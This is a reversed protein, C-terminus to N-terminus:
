REEQNIPEEPHKLRIVRCQHRITEGAKQCYLCPTRMSRIASAEARRLDPINRVSVPHGCTAHATYNFVGPKVELVVAKKPIAKRRKKSM